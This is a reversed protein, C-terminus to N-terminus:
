LACGAAAWPPIPVPIPPGTPAITSPTGQERIVRIRTKDIGVSQVIQNDTGKPPIHFPVGM